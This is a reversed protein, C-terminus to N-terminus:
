GSFADKVREFFSRGGQPMSDREMGSLQEFLAREKSNLDAPTWVHIRVLHDGQGYGNLSPIGKGRM